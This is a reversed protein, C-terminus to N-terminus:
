SRWDVVTQKRLVDWYTHLESQIYDDEFDAFFPIQDNGINVFGALTFTSKHIDAGLLLIGRPLHIEFVQLLQDKGWAVVVLEGDSLALGLWRKITKWTKRTGEELKVVKQM